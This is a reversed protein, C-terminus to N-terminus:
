PPGRATPTRPPDRLTRPPRRARMRGPTPGGVSGRRRRRGPAGAPSARHACRDVAGCQLVLEGPQGVVPPLRGVELGLQGMGPLFDPLPVLSSVAKYPDPPPAKGVDADQALAPLSGALLIALAASATRM